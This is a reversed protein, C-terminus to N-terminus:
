VNLEHQQIITKIREITDKISDSGQITNCLEHGYALNYVKHLLEGPTRSEIHMLLLEKTTHQASERGFIVKSNEVLEKLASAPREVVEGAAIQDVLHSPLLRITSM